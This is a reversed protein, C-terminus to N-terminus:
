RSCLTLWKIVAENPGFSVADEVAGVIPVHCGSLLGLLLYCISHSAENIHWLGRTDTVGYEESQRCESELFKLKDCKFVFRCLLCDLGEDVRVGLENGCSPFEKWYSLEEVAEANVLVNVLVNHSRFTDDV